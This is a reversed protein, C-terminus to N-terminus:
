NLSDAEGRLQAVAERAGDLHPNIGLAAEYAILAARRRRHRLCIQAFGAIAGFHRPEHELVKRIDRVSAADNGAIYHVTARKNWVEPWEPVVEVLHDLIAEAEDLKRAALAAIAAEMRKDISGDPHNTWLAWIEDEIEFAPRTPEFKSLDRFLGDLRKPLVSSPRQEDLTLIMVVTDDFDITRNM